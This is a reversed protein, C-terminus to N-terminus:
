LRILKVIPNKRSPKKTEVYSSTSPQPGLVQELEHIAQAAAADAPPPNDALTDSDEALNEQSKEIQQREEPIQCLIIQTPVRPGVIFGRNVVVGEGRGALAALPQTPSASPTCESTTPSFHYLFHGYSKLTTYYTHGLSVGAFACQLRTLKETLTLLASCWWEFFIHATLANQETPLGHVLVADNLISAPVQLTLVVVTIKHANYIANCPITLFTFEWENLTQRTEKASVCVSPAFTLTFLHEDVTPLTAAVVALRHDDLINNSVPLLSACQFAFKLHLYKAKPILDSQAFWPLFVWAAKHCPRMQSETVAVAIVPTIGCAAAVTLLDRDSLIEQLLTRLLRLHCSPIIDVANMVAEGLSEDLTDCTPRRIRPLSSVRQLVVSHTNVIRNFLAGKHMEKFAAELDDLKEWFMSRSATYWGALTAFVAAPFDHPFSTLIQEVWSYKFGLSTAVSQLDGVTGIEDCLSSLFSCEELRYGTFDYFRSPSPTPSQHHVPTFTSNPSPVISGQTTSGPAPTDPCEPQPPPPTKMHQSSGSSSPSGSYDRPHVRLIGMIPTRKRCGSAPSNSKSRRPRSVPHPTYRLESPSYLQGRWPCQGGRLFPPRTPNEFRVIDHRRPYAQSSAIPPCRRHHRAERALMFDSTKWLNDYNKWQIFSGACEFSSFDMTHVRDVGEVVMQISTVGM